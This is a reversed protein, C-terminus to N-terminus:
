KTKSIEITRKCKSRYKKQKKGGLNRRPRDGSPSLYEENRRGSKFNEKQWSNESM